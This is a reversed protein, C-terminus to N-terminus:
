RCFWCPGRSLPGARGGLSRVPLGHSEGNISGLEAAVLEANKAELHTGPTSGDGSDSGSRGGRGARCWSSVQPSGASCILRHGRALGWSQHTARRDRAQRQLGARGPEFSVSPVKNRNSCSAPLHRPAQTPPQRGPRGRFASRWPPELPLGAPNSGRGARRVAYSYLFVSAQRKHKRATGRRGGPTYYGSFSILSPQNSPNGAIPPLAQMRPARPPLCGRRPCSPRWRGGRRRGSSLARCCALACPSRRRSRRGFQAGSGGRRPSSAELGQRIIICTRGSHLARECVGGCPSFAM